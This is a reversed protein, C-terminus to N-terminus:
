EPKLVEAAVLKGDEFTLKLNDYMLRYPRVSHAITQSVETFRVEPEPKIRFRWGPTNWGYFRLNSVPWWNGDEECCQVKKGERVADMEKQWKHPTPKVRYEVHSIWTPHTCVTWDMTGVAKLGAACSEFRQPANPNRFEIVAGNAWAKIVAAHKHPKNM